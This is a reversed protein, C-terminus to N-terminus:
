DAASADPRKEQVESVSRQLAKEKEFQAWAEDMMAKLQKQRKKPIRLKAIRVEIPEPPTKLIAVPRPM